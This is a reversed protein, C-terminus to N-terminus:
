QQKIEYHMNKTEFCKTLNKKDKTNFIGNYEWNGCNGCNARRQQLNKKLNDWEAESQISSMAGVSM